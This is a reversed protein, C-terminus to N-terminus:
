GATYAVASPNPENACSFFYATAAGAPVTGAITNSADSLDRELLAGGGDAFYVAGVPGAPGGLTYAALFPHGVTAADVPTSDFTKGKAPDPFAAASPVNGSTAGLCDVNTYTWSGAFSQHAGGTVNVAASYTANLQGDSLTLRATYNAGATYNHALSAPLTTGNTANGDGFALRWTLADGDPDTGNLTFRVTTGNVVAGLSGRPPQDTGNRPATSSSSSSSTPATSGSTSSNSASPAHSASSTVPSPYRLKDGSSCGALAMSVVALLAVAAVLRMVHAHGEDKFLM